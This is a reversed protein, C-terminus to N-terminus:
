THDFRTSSRPLGYLAQLIDLAEKAKRRSWEEGETRSLSERMTRGDHRFELRFAQRNGSWTREVTVRM